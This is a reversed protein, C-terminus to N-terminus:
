EVQAASAGTTCPERQLTGDIQSLYHECRFNVPFLGSM